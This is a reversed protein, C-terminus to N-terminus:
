KKAEASKESSTTPTTAQAACAKATCSASKPCDKANHGADGCFLCLSNSIRRSREAPTLKGDKGLVNSLDPASASSNKASSKQSSKDKDKDKGKSTSNSTASTSTNRSSSSQKSKDSSNRASKEQRTCETKCEWYHADITQVLTHLKFLTHPKGVHSVEDKIQDPFGNYFMHHLAGEGYGKVQSAYHNFEVLYKNVRHHDKMSLHDLQHEADGVPDPPGFNTQLEVIFEKYDDMWLPCLDPDDSNLLDPEFWALVTGKLYSQAFAVKAQNSRFSNPRNQFNLECQVLFECLKKSDSGDFTNPERCKACSSSDQTRSALGEITTVLNGLLLIDPLLPTAPPSGVPTHLGEGYDDENGPDDGPDDDGPPPPGEDNPPADEPLEVICASASPLPGRASFSQFDTASPLPRWTSTLANLAQDREASHAQARTQITHSM